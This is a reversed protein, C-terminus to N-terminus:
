ATTATLRGARTFLQIAATHMLAGLSQSAQGACARAYTSELIIGLKFCGLITFWPLDDLSRTTRERYRDVLFQPSPMTGSNWIAGRFPDVDEHEDPWAALLRGLDVLPDGISSMEWDVVAALRGEDPTFLLNGLHYDGHMIGPRYNTPLNASLFQAVQDFNPLPDAPYGSLGVYSEHESIWRGVQRELFGDPRGFKDLGVERHDIEGLEALTVAAQAVMHKRGTDDDIGSPIEALPNFGDVAEMLYFVARTDPDVGGLVTNDECTAILRPHPIGTGDLARLVTAERLILSNNKPRPKLPPRRLVLDLNGRQFRALINQTGGSILTPQTILGSGIGQDDMWTQLSHIDILASVKVNESM